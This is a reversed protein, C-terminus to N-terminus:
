RRSNIVKHIDRTDGLVFAIDDPRLVTDAAPIFVEDGRKITLININLRKRADIQMLSKGFWAKPM